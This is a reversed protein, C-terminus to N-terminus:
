FPLAHLATEHPAGPDLVFHCGDPLLDRLDAGTTAFWPVDGYGRCLAALSSFVAIAGDPRALFGPSRGAPCYLVAARFAEALRTPDNSAAARLLAAAPERLAAAPISRGTAALHVCWDPPLLPLLAHGSLTIWRTAGPPPEPPPTREDFLPLLRGQGLDLPVPAGTDDAPVRYAPALLAALDAATDPEAAGAPRSM